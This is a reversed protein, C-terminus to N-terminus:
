TKQFIRENMEEKSKRIDAKIIEESKNIEGYLEECVEKVKDRYRENVAELTLEGNHIRIALFKYMYWWGEMIMLIVDQLAQDSVDQREKLEKM